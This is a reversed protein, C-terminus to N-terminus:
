EIGFEENFMPLFQGWPQPVGESISCAMLWILYDIYCSMQIDGIANARARLKFAEGFQKTANMNPDITKM